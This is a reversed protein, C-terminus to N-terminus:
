IEANWCKSNHYCKPNIAKHGRTKTLCPWLKRKDIDIGVDYTM